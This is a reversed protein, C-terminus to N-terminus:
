KEGMILRSAGLLDDCVHDPRVDYIGDAGGHGTRVLITKCGANKGCLIDKTSDGVLWCRKLDLDFTEAALELLGTKPKRCGCGDEPVHTCSYVADVRGGNSEIEFMMQSHIDELSEVSMIGRSVPSQNTVIIIKHNTKSLIRLADLAKPLFKFEKFSKVYDGRNENITGDRDLFVAINM